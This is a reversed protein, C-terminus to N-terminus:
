LAGFYPPTQLYNNLSDLGIIISSVNGKKDPTNWSTVTGGYNSINVQVGKANTLTYLFVDKGDTQGWNTKMIGAKKTETINTTNTQSNNGCSSMALVVTNLVAFYCLLRKM